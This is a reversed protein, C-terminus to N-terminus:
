LQQTAKNNIVFAELRTISFGVFKNNYNYKCLFSLDCKIIIGCDILGQEQNIVECYVFYDWDKQQVIKKECHKNELLVSEPLYSKSTLGFLQVSFITGISIPYDDAKIRFEDMVCLEIGNIEIYAPLCFGASRLYKAKYIKWM